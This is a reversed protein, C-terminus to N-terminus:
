KTAGQEAGVGVLQLYADELTTRRVELDTVASDRLLQRVYDEAQDTTHVFHKGDVQWTIEVTSAIAHRLSAPSGDAVIRGGALIAVRSALREAEALDHTSLLMTTGADVEDALLDHVARKAAPDLGTTPEDLILVGPRGLLALVLDLRRRLGGSLKGLPKRAHASLGFRALLEEGDRPHPYHSAVWAVMEAVRWKARDHGFQLVVGLQRQWDRGAQPGPVEGLLRVSGSDGRVLGLVIEILTTKGAGNPGLLALVEGPQVQLHLDRLVPTGGYSKSLGTVDIVPTTGM